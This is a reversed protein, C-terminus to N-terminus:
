IKLQICMETPQLKWSSYLIDFMKLTFTYIFIQQVCRFNVLIKVSQQLLRCLFVLEKELGINDEM